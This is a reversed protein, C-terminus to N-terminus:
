PTRLADRLATGMSDYVTMTTAGKGANIMVGGSNPSGGFAKLMGVGDAGAFMGVRDFQPQNPTGNLMVAAYQGGPAVSVCAAEKAKAGWDLCMNARGDAFAAIGGREGGNRPDYIALGASAAIRRGTRGDAFVLPNNAGVSVHLSGTSDLVVLGVTQSLKSDASVGRIPAGLVIRERGASDVIVLGRARLVDRPPLAAAAIRIVIVAALFALLFSFRRELIRLRSRLSETENM